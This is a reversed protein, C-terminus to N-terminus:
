KHTDSGAKWPPGTAVGATGPEVPDCGTDGSLVQPTAANPPAAGEPAEIGAHVPEADRARRRQRTTLGAVGVAVLLTFGEFMPDVFAQVGFQELGAIGVAIVVIAVITGWANARGPRLATTGLLAGVLAPLLYDNGISPEGVGLQAALVAGALGTLAGSTIFAGVVCRRVPIGNLAAARANAGVAYLFRGVPLFELVIWLVFALVLVFLMTYPVNDVAGNGLSVFTAPLTALIENGGTLALMGGYLVYGTGLTAIFSDIQAFEVLLGNITGILGGIVIVIPVVLPWPLGDQAQLIVTLVEALGLAYGISIDFKGTAIPVMSALALMAIVSNSSGISRLDLTTPFTRPLLISFLVILFVTFGVLAFRSVVSDGHRMGTWGRWGQLSRSGGPSATAKPPTTSGSMADM